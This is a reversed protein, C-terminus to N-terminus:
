VWGFPSVIVEGTGKKAKLAALTVLNASSGFNVFVSHKVGMWDSWEKEFAQVNKSQTHIPADQQLFKILVDLDDQTINNQMLPINVPM